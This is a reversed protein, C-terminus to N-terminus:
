DSIRERSRRLEAMYLQRQGQTLDCESREEIREPLEPAVQDKTRRLLIPRLKASLLKYTSQPHEPSGFRAQFERRSGLYGPNLCAVISWVDLPRNELPTGTLALRYRSKLSRAARAVATDPNKVNQAEDLVFA